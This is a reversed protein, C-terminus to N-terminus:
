QIIIDGHGKWECNGDVFKYYLRVTDKIGFTGANLQVNHQLITDNSILINFDQDVLRLEVRTAPEKEIHLSFIGNCPNPYAIIQNNNQPSCMTHILPFLGSEKLLWIDDTRWDTTDSSFILGNVDRNTIGNFYISSEPPTNPEGPECGCFIVITIFIWVINNM